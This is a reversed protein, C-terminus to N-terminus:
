GDKGCLGGRTRGDNGGRRAAREGDVAANSCSGVGTAPLAAVVVVPPEWVSLLAASSTVIRPLPKTSGPSWQLPRACGM